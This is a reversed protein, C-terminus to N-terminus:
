SACPVERCLNPAARRVLGGILPLDAWLRPGFDWARAQPAALLLLGVLVVNPSFLITFVFFSGVHFLLLALGWPRLLRPRFVAWVSSIQIYVM